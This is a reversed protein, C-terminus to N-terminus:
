TGATYLAYILYQEIRSGKEAKDLLGQLVPIWEKNVPVRPSGLTIAMRELDVAGAKCLKAYMRASAASGPM